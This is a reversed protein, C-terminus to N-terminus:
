RLNPTQRIQKRFRAMRPSIGPTLFALQYHRSWTRRNNDFTGAISEARSALRLDFLPRIGGGQWRDRNPTRFRGRSIGRSLILQGATGVSSTM